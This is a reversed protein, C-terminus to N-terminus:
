QRPADEDGGVAVVTALAYDGDHAISLHCSRVNRRLLYQKAAAAFIFFPRGNEDNAVTIQRWTLPARLGCGLAKGLAEKAAWRGALGALEATKADRREDDTLIKEPLRRPHRHLVRRLRRMDVIDNGIGFIM